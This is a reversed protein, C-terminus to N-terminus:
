LFKTKNYWRILKEDPNVLVARGIKRNELEYQRIIKEALPRNHDRSKIYLVYIGDEEEVSVSEKKEDEKKGVSMPIDFRREFEIPVYFSTDLVVYLYMFFFTFCLFVVAGLAFARVIRNDVPVPEAEGPMRIARIEDIERQKEGFKAFASKLAKTIEMTRERSVNHVKVHVIRVDTLLTASLSEQLEKKELEPVQRLVEDTFLDTYILSEWTEKNYFTYQQEATVADKYEIYYESEAQYEREGAFVTNKLYYIGAFLVGGVFSMLLVLWWKRILRLFCLRVDVPEKGYRYQVM